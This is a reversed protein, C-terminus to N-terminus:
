SSRRVLEESGARPSNSEQDWYPSVRRLNSIVGPFVEIIRDV